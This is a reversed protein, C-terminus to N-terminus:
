PKDYVTVIIKALGYSARRQHQITNKFDAGLTAHPLLNRASM